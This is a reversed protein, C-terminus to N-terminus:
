VKDRPTIFFKYSSFFNIVHLFQVCDRALISESQLRMVEKLKDRMLQILGKIKKPSFIPIRSPKGNNEPM